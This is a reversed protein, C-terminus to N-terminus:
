HIVSFRFKEIETESQVLLLYMGQSLTSTNIRGYPLDSSTTFVLKGTHDFIHFVLNNKTGTFEIYDDAPNPFVSMIGSAAENIDQQTCYTIGTEVVGVQIDIFPASSPPTLDCFDFTGMMYGSNFSSDAVQIYGKVGSITDFNYCGSSILFWGDNYILSSFTLLNSNLLDNGLNVFSLEMNHFKGQNWMNNTCTVTGETNLFIGNNTFNFFNMDGANICSVANTYANATISGLNTLTDNNYLSDATVIGSNYMDTTLHLNGINMTGINNLEASTGEYLFNRVTLQGANSFYSNGYIWLNRTSTNQILSGTSNIVMFGQAIVFDTDFVVDHNIIVSYGPVPICMCDWTLPNLWNGNSITTATQANSSIIYCVFSLLIIFKKM